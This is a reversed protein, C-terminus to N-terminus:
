TRGALTQRIQSTVAAELATPVRDLLRVLAIRNVLPKRRTEIAVLRGRQLRQEIVHRPVVGLGMHHEVATVVAQVSEVTLAIDLALATQKFHHSFWSHLAPARPRYAVYSADLLSDLSTPDIRAVTQKSGALILQEDVLREVAVGVQQPQRAAFVDALVLDLEGRELMPITASPHGLELQFCAQPHERRFGALLGPLERTGLETPAGIRVTGILERRARQLGEVGRQLEAMFPSVVDYLAHAAQTPVLRGHSRVFLQTDVERELKRVSQSVASQTVHLEDAAAGVRGTAYVHFFVRLRNLDPIMLM